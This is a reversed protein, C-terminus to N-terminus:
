FRLLHDSYFSYYGPLIVLFFGSSHFNLGPFIIEILFFTSQFNIQMWESALVKGSYRRLTFCLHMPQMANQNLYGGGGFVWAIDRGSFM